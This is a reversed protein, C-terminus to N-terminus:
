SPPDEGNHPLFSFEIGLLPHTKLFAGEKKVRNSKNNEKYSKRLSITVFLM